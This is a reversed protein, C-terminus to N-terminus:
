TKALKAPAEIQEVELRMQFGTEAAILQEIEAKDLQRPSTWGDHELLVLADRYASVVVHLMRAEVGQLIHALRMSATARLTGDRSAKGRFPLGFLNVIRGRERPWAKLVTARGLRLDEQLDLVLQDQYLSRARELGIEKPISDKERMSRRAGYGLQILCTKAEKLTLGHREALQLRVENKHALYYAVSELELGARGALQRFIEIHANAFDHGFQGNLAAKKILRHASQLNVGIGQLRGTQTQRYQHVIWGLGALETRAACRVQELQAMLRDVCANPELSLSALAETRAPGELAAIVCLREDLAALAALDVPVLNVPNTGRWLSSTGRLSERVIAPPLQRRRRGTHRILAVTAGTDNGHRRRSQLMEQVDPMLRYAKTHRASAEVVEMLRHRENLKHFKGRGFLAELKEHHISFYEAFEKHRGQKLQSSWVLYAFGWRVPWPEERLSPRADCLATIIEDPVDSMLSSRSRERIRRRAQKQERTRPAPGRALV